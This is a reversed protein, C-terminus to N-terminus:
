RRRWFKRFPTAPGRWKPRAGMIKEQLLDIVGAAGRRIGVRALEGRDLPITVGLRIDFRDGSPTDYVYCETVAEGWWNSPLIVRLIYDLEQKDIM